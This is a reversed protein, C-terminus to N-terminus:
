IYINNYINKEYIKNNFKTDKFQYVNNLDLFM